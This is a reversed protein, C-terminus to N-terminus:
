ILKKFYRHLIFPEVICYILMCIVNAIVVGYWDQCLKVLLIALPVKVAAGITYCILQTRLRGLGNAISSLVSVFIMTSAFLAFLLGLGTSIEIGSAAEEGLWISMIPRTFFIVGMELITALLALIMFNRYTKRIWNFNQEAKAKTVISWIPTLTLAFITSGLSFLKFYAQYEINSANDVTRTILFENTSMIIMYAIQIVFFLGGLNLVKVMHSRKFSVFSPVAYRLTRSFVYLTAIILPLLVAASHVISMEIINTNNDGSPAVLVYTLIVVNTCLMLFNNVSSLQLAYLVSNILKLWFQLMVGVFVIIASTYLTSPSIIESSINLVSNLDTNRIVFPFILSFVLAIAGISLYASSIYTRTQEKDNLAISESLYNRLGNGIGLDFNLIWSLLSLITFWLGLVENNNFYSIYAPLTYLTIFFAFGKVVFAGAINTVVAKNNPNNLGFRAKLTNSIMKM